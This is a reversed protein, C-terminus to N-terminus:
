RFLTMAPRVVRMDTVNERAKESQPRQRSGVRQFRCPRLRNIHGEVVQREEGVPANRRRDLQRGDAGGARPPLHDGNVRKFQLCGQLPVRAPLAASMRFPVSYTM